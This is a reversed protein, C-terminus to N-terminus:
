EEDVWGEPIRLSWVESNLPEAHGGYVWLKDQFVLASHEHRTKWIVDFTVETWTKGDESCWLDRSLKGGHYYGNSLWMKGDFVVDEATDRPSFAAKDTVKVWAGTLPAAAGGKDEAMVVSGALMVVTTTWIAHKM